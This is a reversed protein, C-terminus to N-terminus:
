INNLLFGCITQEVKPTCSGALAGAGLKPIRKPTMVFRTLEINMGRKRGGCSNGEKDETDLLGIRYHDFSIVFDKHKPILILMLIVIKSLRTLGVMTLVALFSSNLMIIIKNKYLM